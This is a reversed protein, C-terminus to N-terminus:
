LMGKFDGATLRLNLEATKQQLQAQLYRTQAEIISFQFERLELDTLAGNMYANKAIEFNVGAQDINQQELELNRIAWEYTNYSKRLESAVFLEEDALQLEANEIQLENNKLTTYTSLNNLINWTLHFGVGPGISRNSNLVGIQSESRSFQYQAYFSLQPFYYSRAEKREQERVAINAKNILINTNQARASELLRSWELQQIDRLDGTVEFDSDQPMGLMYNITAKSNEIEKLNNIFVSSDAFLDLRAQVLQVESAAGLESKLSLQDYRARSLEISQRYISDLSQLQLLTYYQVSVQYIKMEMDARLNMTAIDEQLDLRKDVAFMRFGDFFTWNLMASATLSTNKAANAENVQGSFFVQRTNYASWYRDANVIITPLYGANGPNNNNEAVVIENRLIRIGYNSELLKGIMQDLTYNQQTKGSFPLCAFILLIFLPHKSLKKM